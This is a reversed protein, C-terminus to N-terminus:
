PPERVGVLLQCYRTEKGGDRAMSEPEFERKKSLPVVQSRVM